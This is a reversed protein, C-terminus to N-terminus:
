LEPITMVLGKAALRRRVFRHHVLDALSGSIQDGPLGNILYVKGFMEDDVRTTM